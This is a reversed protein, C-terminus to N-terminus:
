RGLMEDIEAPSMALFTAYAAEVAAGRNRSSAFVDESRLQEGILEKAADPNRKAWAKSRRAAFCGQFLKMMAEIILALPIAGVASGGEAEYTAAFQKRRKENM